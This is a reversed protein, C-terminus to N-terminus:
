DVSESIGLYMLAIPHLYVSQQWAPLCVWITSVNIVSWVSARFHWSEKWCTHALPHFQLGKVNGVSRWDPNELELIAISGWFLICAVCCFLGLSLKNHRTLDVAAICVKARICVSGFSAVLNVVQRAVSVASTVTARVSPCLKDSVFWIKFFQSVLIQSKCPHGYLCGPQPGLSGAIPVPCRGPRAVGRWSWDQLFTSRTRDFGRNRWIFSSRHSWSHSVFHLLQVSWIYVDQSM